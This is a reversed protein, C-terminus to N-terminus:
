KNGFQRAFRKGALAVKKEALAKAEELSSCLTGRPAASGFIEGNRTAFTRLYHYSTVVSDKTYAHTVVSAISGVSRGKPDRLGHEFVESTWCTLCMPEGDPEGVFSVCVVNHQSPAKWTLTMDVTRAGGTGNRL